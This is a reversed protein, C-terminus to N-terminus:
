GLRRRGPGPVPLGVEGLVSRDVYHEWLDEVTSPLARVDVAWEIADVVELDHRAAAEKYVRLARLGGWIYVRRQMQQVRRLLFWGIIRGWVRRFFGDPPALATSDSASDRYPM